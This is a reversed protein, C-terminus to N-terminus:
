IMHTPDHLSFERVLPIARYYFPWYIGQFQQM